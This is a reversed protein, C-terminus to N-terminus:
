TRLFDVSEPEITLRPESPPLFLLAPHGTRRMFAHKAVESRKLRGHRDRPGPSAPPRAARPAHVHLRPAHSRHFPAPRYHHPTYAHSRYSHSGGYGHSGGHHQASCPAAAAISLVLALRLIRM